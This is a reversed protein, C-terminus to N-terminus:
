PARQIAGQLIYGAWYFAHEYPKYEWAREKEKSGKAMSEVILADTTRGMKILYDKKKRNTMQSIFQKADTLAKLKNDIGMVLLNTYFENMLLASSLDTDGQLIYGAWYFAHENM